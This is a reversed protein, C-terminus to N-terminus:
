ASLFKETPTSLSPASYAYLKIYVPSQIRGLNSRHLYLFQINSLNSLSLIYIFSENDSFIQGYFANGM